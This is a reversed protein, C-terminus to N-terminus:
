LELKVFANGGRHHGDLLTALQWAFEVKTM